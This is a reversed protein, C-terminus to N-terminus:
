ADYVTKTKEMVHELALAVLQSIHDDALAYVTLRGSRRYRVLRAQRLVRLQHSVASQSMDTVEALDQVCLESRLLASILRMRSPDGLVKFLESSELLIQDSVAAQGSKQPNGTMKNIKTLTAM